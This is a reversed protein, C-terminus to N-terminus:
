GHCSKCEGDTWDILTEQKIDQKKVVKSEAKTRFYYLTLVNNSKLFKMHVSNVYERSSGSPFFLNLSQAQCIYQGRTEALEILWHQDIEMATKFVAKQEPTLFDLHQVSGENDSISKWVEKTNQGLTELLEELYRNKQEASGARTDKIFYNSFWPEISPSSNAIDSSSANPAIALLRSNRFGTGLMDPAEGREMALLVSEEMARNKIHKYVINNLQVASNFGGSELPINKRQLLSHWGFTGLGLAREREASYRAKLLTSDLCKDIFVQLVNDLFRILDRVLNTDKWDPYRELNLSSLCCVFTRLENTPLTIESCLNSGKIKLGLQKQSEPMKRNALDIKFMYPEGTLARTELIEEWIERARVTEYVTGKAPCKLDITKDELVAQIFEDTLNVANHFQQRNDSRRKDDGGPVRFRIHEIIDPHDVDMYAAISGRRAGSQKFYGVTSDMVKMYPIPGPAKKSTGRISNHLGVGGGSVSLKALEKVAEVQGNITDPMEMAYCSIPLGIAEQEAIFEFDIWGERKAGTYEWRGKPANTMVPTAFMFWNNYVADYIRQALEYDGFCFATAVRAFAEPITEGEKVYSDQLLSRALPTIFSPDQEHIKIGLYQKCSTQM